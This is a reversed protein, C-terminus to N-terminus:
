FTTKFTFTVAGRDCLLPELGNAVTLAGTVPDTDYDGFYDSYKLTFNYKQYLDGVLGVSYTGAGETGGFLVSSNGSIGRTYTLPLSVDLGPLAQFWTPTVVAGFGFFNKDVADIGTRGSRGMFLQENETVKDWRNWTFETLWTLSDFLPTENVLGLLNAVGHFTNGRAGASNGKSPLGAMMALDSNLPMNERYSLEAGLSVGKVDMALSIGYLDIDSAYTDHLQFTNTDLVLQPLKDSFNRYYLGLTGGELVEPTWRAMIGWDGSDDPVVDRGRMAFTNPGLILAETAELYADTPSLFTGSEPARFQEWEFYYQAAISLTDSPQIQASINNLPRFLEKVDVGPVAFGKATDLPSQSYAIGHIAGGLLM